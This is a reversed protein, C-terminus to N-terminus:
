NSDLPIGTSIFLLNEANKNLFTISKSIVIIVLMIKIGYYIMFEM